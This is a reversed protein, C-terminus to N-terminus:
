LYKMFTTAISFYILLGVVDNITTIFPGSAIAPDFKLKNLILPFVLGIVASISLTILISLGVVIGLIFNGYLILILMSILIMCTLGILFGTSFERRIMRWLDKMEITGLALGRVSVALSQTGVNGGSDMLMPMFAALIVVSELTDEFQGIVGSTVMGAFMLFIIWPARKKAAQFATLNTENADKVTSFEGFNKTTQLEILDMVDDVTIVGMLQNKETVVPVALLDYKKVVKGVEEQGMDVLISVPHKHMINEVQENSESAILKKLSVVGALCGKDDIVYTYYVIEADQGKKRIKNLVDEATEERFATIFEDTMVAGATELDYELIAIIKQAKEEDMREVIKKAEDEKVTKLFKVVDDTFMHNMMESAYDESLEEFCVQEHMVYLGSFIVAFEKPDLFSYVQEREEKNLTIFIDVQDTPHLELYHKRFEELDDEQLACLIIKTYKERNEKNLKIM